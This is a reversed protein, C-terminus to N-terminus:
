HSQEAARQRFFLISIAIFMLLVASAGFQSLALGGAKHPKDLFDGL